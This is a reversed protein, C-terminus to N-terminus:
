LSEEYAHSKSYKDLESYRKKMLYEIWLKIRQLITFFILNTEIREESSFREQVCVPPIECKLSATILVFPCISFAFVRKWKSRDNGERSRSERSKSFLFFNRISNVRSAIYKLRPGYWLPEERAIEMQSAIVFHRNPPRNEGDMTMRMTKARGRSREFYNESPCGSIETARRALLFGGLHQCKREFRAPHDLWTSIIAISLDM